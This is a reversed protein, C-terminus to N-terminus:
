RRNLIPVPARPLMANKERFRWPVIWFYGPLAGFSWAVMLRPAALHKECLHSDFPPGWVGVWGGLCWHFNSQTPSGKM